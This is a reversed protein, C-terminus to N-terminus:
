RRRNLGRADRDGCRGLSARWSEVAATATAKSASMDDGLLHERALEWVRELDEPSLLAVSDAVEDEGYQRLDIAMEAPPTILRGRRPAGALLQPRDALERGGILLGERVALHALNEEDSLGVPVDVGERRFHHVLAWFRPLLDPRRGLFNDGAQEAAERGEFCLLYEVAKEVSMAVVEGDLLMGALRRRDEFIEFWPLVVTRIAAIADAM